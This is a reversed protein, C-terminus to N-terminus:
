SKRVEVPLFAHVLHMLLEKYELKEVKTVEFSDLLELCQKKCSYAKDNDEELLALYAQNLNGIFKIVKETTEKIKTSIIESNLNEPNEADTETNQILLSRDADIIVIAECCNQLLLDSHDQDSAANQSIHSLSEAIKEVAKPSELDALLQCAKALVFDGGLIALKNIKVGLKDTDSFQSINRHLNMACEILGNIEAITQVENQAKNQSGKELHITNEYNYILNGLLSILVGRFALPVPHVKSNDKVSPASNNYVIPMAVNKWLSHERRFLLYDSVMPVHKQVLGIFIESNLLKQMGAVSTSLPAQNEESLKETAKSLVKTLAQTDNYKIFSSFAQRQEQNATLHFNSPLSSYFRSIHLSRTLSRRLM